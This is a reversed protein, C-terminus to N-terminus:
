EGETAGHEKLIDIVKQYDEPSHNTYEKFDGKRGYEAITVPRYESNVDAGLGILHRALGGNAYFAAWGLPSATHEVDRIELDAGAEALHTLTKFQNGHVALHIPAVGQFGAAAAIENLESPSCDAIAKLAVDGSTLVADHLKM